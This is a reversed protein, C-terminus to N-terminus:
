WSDIFVFHHAINGQMPALANEYASAFKELIFSAKKKKKQTSSCYPSYLCM